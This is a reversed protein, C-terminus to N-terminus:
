ECEPDREDRLETVYCRYRELEALYDTLPDGDKLCGWAKLRGLDELTEWSPEPVPAPVGVLVM